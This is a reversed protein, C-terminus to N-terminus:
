RKRQIRYQIKAIDMQGGMHVWAFDADILVSLQKLLQQLCWGLQKSSTQHKSLTKYFFLECVRHRDM